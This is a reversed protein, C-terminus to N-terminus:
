QDWATLIEKEDLDWVSPAPLNTTATSPIATTRPPAIHNLLQELVNEMNLVRQQLGHIMMTDETAPWPATPEEMALPNNPTSASPGAKAKAQLPMMKPAAFSKPAVPTQSSPGMLPQAELGEMEEVKKEIYL